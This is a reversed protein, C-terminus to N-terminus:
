RSWLSFLRKQILDKFEQSDLGDELVKSITNRSYREKGASVSKIKIFFPEHLYQYEVVDRGALKHNINKTPLVLVVEDGYMNPGCVNSFLTFEFGEKSLSFNLKMTLPDFLEDSVNKNLHNIHSSIIQRFMTFLKINNEKIDNLKQLESEYQERLTEQLSKEKIEVLEITITIKKM